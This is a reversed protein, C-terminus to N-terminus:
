REAKKEPIIVFSLVKIETGNIAQFGVGGYSYTNDTFSGLPLEGLQPRSAINITHSFQNGVVKVKLQFSDDPTELNEVVDRSDKLELKGDRCLYFNFLWQRRESKATTLEFLYYNKTDLARVVWAARKGKGFGLDFSWTFDRYVNFARTETADKFLAVAAGSIYLAGNEM